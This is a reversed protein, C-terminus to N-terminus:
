LRSMRNLFIGHCSSALLGRDIAECWLEIPVSQIWPLLNHNKILEEPTRAGICVSEVIQPLFAFALAIVPLTTKYKIALRNWHIAKNQDECSAKSYRLTDGGWLLGSGFIGANIVPIKREHCEILVEFGSQDMLNWSGAMMVKDFTDIPHQKLMGLIYEPDNMGLSIEDVVGQQKLEILTKRSNYKLVDQFRDLTEADHLRLGTIPYKLRKQSGSLSKAIGSESYDFILKPSEDKSHNEKSFMKPSSADIESTKNIQETGPVLCRGVKTYLKIGQTPENSENMMTFVDGIITEATGLGYSPATDIGGWGLQIATRITEKADIPDVSQYLGALPATGLILDCPKRLKTSIFGSM